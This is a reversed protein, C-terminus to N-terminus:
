PRLPYRSTYPFIRGHARRWTALLGATDAPFTASYGSTDTVHVLGQQDDYDINVAMGGADLVHVRKGPAPNGALEHVNILRETVPDYEFAFGRGGSQTVETMRGNADYEFDTTRGNETYSILNLNEDWVRLKSRGDYYTTVSPLGAVNFTHTTTGRPDVLLTRTPSEYIFEIEGRPLRQRAVRDESDYANELEITGDPAVIRTMNHDADYVYQTRNGLPDAVTILDGDASYTFSYDGLMPDTVAAIRGDSGRVFQLTRGSASTASSIVGEADYGITLVQQDVTEIEQIRGDAGYRQVLGTKARLEYSGDPNELLDRYVSSPRLLEGDPSMAFRTQKGRGDQLVLFRDGGNETVDISMSTLTTYWGFGFPGDHTGQNRYTFRLELWPGGQVICIDHRTVDLVFEGSPLNVPDGGGDDDELIEVQVSATQVNGARDAISADANTVGFPLPNAPTYTASTAGVTASGTVDVSNVSLAFSSLDLNSSDDSYATVFDPQTNTTSAVSPETFALSPATKDINVIVTASAANGAFDGATGSVVQGSGEAAVVVPGPCSLVGSLGDNCTFSVTVDTNNWGFTNAQPNQIAGITPPTKDINLTATQSATNGAVDVATGTVTLGQGEITVNVPGACSEIGSLADQCSFSVTVDTNNWGFTNPIPLQTSAITPATKDINLSVTRTATNGAVDVATGMVTQGAGENSVTVPDTCSAIGSLADQCDFSVTVDTNNWGAANPLPMQSATISPATKDINLTVTASATNGANDQATGTVTQGAGETTVTVPSPCFAVGSITDTCSFTVTVDTNHWGAANPPPMVTAVITPPEHDIGILELTIGSEPKSQLRVTIENDIEVAVLKQIFTVKQRFEDPTVVLVGNLLVQGSTIETGFQGQKGGNYIRLFYDTYKTLVSFTGSVEVPISTTRVYDEPGFVQFEGLVASRGLEELHPATAEKLPKSTGQAFSEPACVLSLCTTWILFSETKM